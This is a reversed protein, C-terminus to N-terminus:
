REVVLLGLDILDSLDADAGADGECDEVTVVVLRVLAELGEPVHPVM